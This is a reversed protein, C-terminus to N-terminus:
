FILLCGFGSLDTPIKTIKCGEEAQKQTFIPPYLVEPHCITNNTDDKNHTTYVAIYGAIGAAAIAGACGIGCLVLLSIM